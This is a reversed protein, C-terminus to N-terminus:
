LHSALDNAHSNKDVPPHARRHPPPPIVRLDEAELKHRQGGLECWGRGHTCYIFIAQNVGTRREMYHGAAKPFYGADTPLLARLLADEMAKAVVKRPLVVIRQDPFDEPRKSRDM